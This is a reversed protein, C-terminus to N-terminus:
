ILDTRNGLGQFGDLHGVIGTIGRHSRMTGPLRFIGGDCIQCHREIGALNLRTSRASALSHCFVILKQANLFLQSGGGDIRAFSGEM